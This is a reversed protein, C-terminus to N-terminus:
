RKSPRAEGTTKLVKLEFAAEIFNKMFLVKGGWWLSQPNDTKAKKAALPTKYEIPIYTAANRFNFSEVNVLNKWALKAKRQVVMKEM